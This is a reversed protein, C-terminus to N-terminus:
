KWDGVPVSVERSRMDGVAVESGGQRESFEICDM